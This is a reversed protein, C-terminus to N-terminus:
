KMLLLRKSLMFLSCYVERIWRSEIKSLIAVEREPDTMVTKYPKLQSVLEFRKELLPILQNDVADIEKRIKVLPM